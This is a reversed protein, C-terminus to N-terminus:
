KSRLLNLAKELNKANTSELRLLQVRRASTTSSQQDLKEIFSRVEVILSPPGRLVISNTAENVSATLLPGASQANIQQLVTAVEASVGEPINVAERGAGATLQSKYVDQVISAVQKASASQLQVISPSIQQLTDLLDESDFVALLEEVIKRDARNGGIILGNIRPEAVIKVRQIADSISSRRVSEGSRFLEILLEELHKADAHRLIYVSFNGATAFPTVKPNTLTELLSAFLELAETDDSALTWQGDGTVVIIPPSQKRAPQQVNPNVQSSTLRHLPATHFTKERTEFPNESAQGFDGLKKPAVPIPPATDPIRIDIPQPNVVNIPNNRMTPWLQQIDELLQKSSRHVPVYRLRGSGVSVNAPQSEGMQKLLKRLSELQDKTARVLVQQQNTDVSIMPASARPEDQFLADAALKFSFPDASNLQIIELERPPPAFQKIAEEVL